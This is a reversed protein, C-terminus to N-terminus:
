EAETAPSRSGVRVPRGAAADQAASERLMRQLAPTLEEGLAHAESERSPAGSWESWRHGARRGADRMLDGLTAVRTSGVDADGRVAAVVEPDSLEALLAMHNPTSGVVLVRDGAEVLTVLRNNALGVTELIKLAGSASEVRASRNVFRRLAYISAWIILGVLALRWLLGFVDGVSFSSVGGGVLPETTDEDSPGSGADASVAAAPGGALGPEDPASQAAQAFLPESGGGLGGGLAGSLSLLLGLAAIAGLISLRRKMRSPPRTM